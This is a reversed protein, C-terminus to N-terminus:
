RCVAIHWCAQALTLIAFGVLTLWLARAVLQLKRM